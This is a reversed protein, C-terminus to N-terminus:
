LPAPPPRPLVRDLFDLVDRAMQPALCLAELRVPHIGGGKKHYFLNITFPLHNITLPSYFM